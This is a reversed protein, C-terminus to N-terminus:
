YLYFALISCGVDMLIFSEMAARVIVTAVADAMEEVESAPRVRRELARRRSPSLPSSSVM